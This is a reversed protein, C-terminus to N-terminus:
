TTPPRQPYSPRAQVYQGPTVGITARFDRIFHAQDAYGADWAVARADARPFIAAFFTRYNACSAPLM